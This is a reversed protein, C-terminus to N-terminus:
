FKGLRQQRTQDERKRDEVHKEQYRLEELSKRLQEYRGESLM